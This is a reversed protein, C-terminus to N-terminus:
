VLSLVDHPLYGTQGIDSASVSPKGRSAPHGRAKRIRGERCIQSLWIAQRTVSVENTTAGMWQRATSQAAILSVPGAHKKSFVCSLRKSRLWRRAIMQKAACSKSRIRTRLGRKAVQWGSTGPRWSTKRARTTFARSYVRVARVSVANRSGPLPIACSQLATKVVRAMWCSGSIRKPHMISARPASSTM